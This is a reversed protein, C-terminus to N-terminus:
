MPLPPAVYDGSKGGSKQLLRTGAVVIGKEIAKLMDYATLGAVAAATLAEMEVGTQATTQTIAEIRIAGFPEQHMRSVAAPTDKMPVLELNVSASTLPLPHCLPILESTRKAAM